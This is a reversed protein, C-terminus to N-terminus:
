FFLSFATLLFHLLYVLCTYLIRVLDDVSVNLVGEVSLWPLIVVTALIMTILKRTTQENLKKGVATPEIEDVASEEIHDDESGHM